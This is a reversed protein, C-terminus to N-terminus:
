ARIARLNEYVSLLSIFGTKEFWSLDLSAHVMQCSSNRWRTMSLSLLNDKKWGKRMLISWIRRPNRWSRMQVMRIRRRIWADKNKFLTKVNGRGYYNAWGRIYPNLKKLLTEMNTTQNRRTIERIRQDFKKMAKETPKLFCKYTDEEKTKGWFHVVKFHYGLFDFGKRADVIRTKEPHLTLGLKGELIKRAAKLARESSKPTKCLVVWDDAYRVVRYGRAMMEEDFPHLYINALLPSCVGGQATGSETLQYVGDVMVGSKLFSRILELMSGDSVEKAAEDILKEQPIADFYGKIDADVVYIYGMELFAKIREIAMHASRYPRFGFSCDLFKMEFIPELINRVSQQVIRDRVTPIGLPRIGGNDKQIEVRRVPLPKYRKEKLEQQLNLLNEKLNKQFDRITVGDIGAAGRNARVSQWARELQDPKYVKDILSYWKRKPM